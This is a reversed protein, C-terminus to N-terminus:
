ARSATGTSTLQGTRSFVSYRAASWAPAGGVPELRVQVAVKGATAWGPVDFSDDLWRSYTNKLPQFWEGVFRDDIFVNARQYGINQDSTRRLRVGENAPDAKATFRVPGTSASTGMTVQTRDGKGEFTSTLTGTTEGTASYGHVARSNTGTIDVIDSSALSPSSQGYWYATSSYNAPMSSRNGHEIDFEIGNGFPAADSMMLRYAGLCVYQCGYEATQHAVLGAQPMAYPVGEPGGNRGDQFYWGSEYFDESGTGYVTPSAAGDAYMREDGELYNMQPVQGSPILGRMTTTVGYFLGRGSTTLFNWDKGAQTDARQQTAHFYGLSGDALGTAATPDPATTILLNGTLIGVTTTNVLQITATRAYPMPWWSTFAGNETTDISHMLTRSAYKGLGSGFFEGVPADVTTQGDFTIRLRLGNLLTESASVLDDNAAYRFWRLGEWRAGAIQYGHVGEDSVHNNGVDMVDTRVWVDGVRSHVEYRFENVDQSSSLFTSAIRIRSKGATVSAPVEITQDVWGGGPVAAGSAWEGVRQGDVSLSAHQDGIGADFRRTIRVGQNAPDITATFSSGGPGYARGDDFLGPGAVARPIRLALQTIQRSGGTLPISATAGPGLATLPAQQTEAGAAAPKPDRVGYGRLRQIVDLAQDTPDFTRVGTADAFQRYTVHYFRPNNQTVIKMTSTYPMPVKIVSGGMTEASNGVLPWVFPAGRAGNVIDQLSGQLVVRGDLEVTIRGIGSVSTNAYTFWISSIEGAGHAEAIVCQGDPEDRLCSYIGKFGDENDGTRDYSSFQKVQEGPRLRALANLSRYTEWGVPGKDAEVSSVASSVAPSAAAARAPLASPALTLLLAAALFRRANKPAVFWSKPM